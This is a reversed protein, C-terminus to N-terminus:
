MYLFQSVSLLFLFYDISVCCSLFAWIKTTSFVWIKYSFIWFPTCIISSALKRCVSLFIIAPFRFMNPNNSIIQQKKQFSVTFMMRIQFSPTKSLGLLFSIKFYRWVWPKTHFFTYEAAAFVLLKKHMNVQFTSFM